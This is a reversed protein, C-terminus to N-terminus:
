SGVRKIEDFVRIRELDIFRQPAIDEEDGTKILGQTQTPSDLYSKFALFLEPKNM